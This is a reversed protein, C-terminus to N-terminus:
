ATRLLNSKVATIKNKVPQLVIGIMLRALSVLHTVLIAVLSEFTVHAISSFFYESFFLEYFNCIFFAAM